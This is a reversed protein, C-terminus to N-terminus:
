DTLWDTLCVSNLNVPLLLLLASVTTSYFNALRCTKVKVKESENESAREKWTSKIQRETSKECSVLTLWQCDTHTSLKSNSWCCCCCCSLMLLHSCSLSLLFALFQTACAVLTCFHTWNCSFFCITLTLVLFLFFTQSLLYLHFLYLQQLHEAIFPCIRDVQRGTKGSQSAWQSVSQSVSM